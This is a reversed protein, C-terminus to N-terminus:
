IKPRYKNHEETVRSDSMHLYIQTTSLHKHRLVRSVTYIDMGANMLSTAQSHRLMHPHVRGLGAKRAAVSLIGRMTSPSVRSGINTTFVPGSKIRMLSLYGHLSWSTEDSMSCQGPINGKGMVTFNSGKIHEVDLNCIEEIRTASEYLMTFLLKDRATYLYKFLEKIEEPELYGRIPNVRRPAEVESYPITKIQHKNCYKLYSKIATIFCAVSNTKNGEQKLQIIFDEISNVSIDKTYCDPFRGVWWVYQEVTRHSFGRINTLYNRYGELTQSVLM